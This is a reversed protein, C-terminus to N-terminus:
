GARGPQSDFSDQQHKDADSLPWGDANGSGDCERCESAETQEDDLQGRGDCKPCPNRSAWCDACLGMEILGDPDNTLVAGCETCHM